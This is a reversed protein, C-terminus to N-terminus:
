LYNGLNVIDREINLVPEAETISSISLFYKNFLEAKDKNNLVPENHELPPIENILNDQSLTSKM